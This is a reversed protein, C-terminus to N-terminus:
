TTQAGVVTWTGPTGAVTCIKLKGSVVALDGIRAAGSPDSDRNYLHMDGITQESVVDFPMGTTKNYFYAVYGSGYQTSSNYKFNGFKGTVADSIFKIGDGDIVVRKGTAATRIMIGTITGAVVEGLNATIAALSSAIIKGAALSAIHASLIQADGIHASQIVGSGIHATGIAAAAIAASGVAADQIKASSVALDALKAEEVSGDVLKAADVALDALKDGDVSLDALARTIVASDALKQETIAYDELAYEGITSAAPLRSHVVVVYASPLIEITNSTETVEVITVNDTQVDVVYDSDDGTM